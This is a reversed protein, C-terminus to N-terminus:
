PIRPPPLPSNGSCADEVQRCIAIWEAFPIDWKSEPAATPNLRSLYGYFLGNGDTRVSGAANDEDAQSVCLLRCAGYKSLAQFLTRSQLACNSEHFKYVFTKDGDALDTLVKDRLWRLRASQKALFESEEGRNQSIFTHFVVGYKTDRVYYEGGDPRKLEVNDNEGLGSFNSNLLHILTELRTHTWRLLGLPEANFHRQVLGLECNEGLSDFRMFLSRLSSEDRMGATTDAEQESENGIHWLAVGRMDQLHKATPNIALATDLRTVATRYDGRAMAVEAFLTAASESRPFKSWTFALQNEAEDLRQMQLLVLGIGGHGEQDSPFDRAITEWRALANVWDKRHHAVWAHHVALAFRDTAYLLGEELLADAEDFRTATRLAIGAQLYGLPDAPRLTRCRTWIALASELDGSEYAWAANAALVSFSQVELSVDTM